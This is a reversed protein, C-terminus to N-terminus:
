VGAVDGTGLLLERAATVAEETGALALMDGQQLREEAAPTIVSAGDRSIALITAGTRGRLNLEALTRGVAPCGEPLHLAVLPGLGPLMATVDALQRPPADNEGSRSYSALTQVVALAGAQVHGELNATSKWLAVGFGLVLILLLIVGAYSPLVAQTAAIVVVFILLVTGAEVTVLLARRPAADFDVKGAVKPLARIALTRGLRISLRGIGVVLPLVISAAAVVIIARSASTGLGTLRAVDDAYRELSVGAGIIVAILATTDLILLRVLRTVVNRGRAPGKTGLRELWAGYLSAFTQIRHPLVHDVWAAAPGSYRILWPTAASTASIM